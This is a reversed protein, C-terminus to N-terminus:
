KTMALKEYNFEKEKISAIIYDIIKSVDNQSFIKTKWVYLETYYMLDTNADTYIQFSCSEKFCKGTDVLLAVNIKFSPIESGNRYVMKKMVKISGDLYGLKNILCDTFNKIWNERFNNFNSYEKMM